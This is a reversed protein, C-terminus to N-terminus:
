TAWSNYWSYAGDLWEAVEEDSADAPDSDREPVILVPMVIQIMEAAREAKEEEDFLLVVEDAVRSLIAVQAKSMFQGSMGLVRRHGYQKMALRNLEGECLIVRGSTGPIDHIGYLTQSADFTDFNYRDEKGPKNGLFRYKPKAEPWWARGKFGILRGEEDRYPISIMRLIPDFGIEADELTQKTFGRQFMYMSWKPPATDDMLMADWVAEWDVARDEQEKEDIPVIARKEATVDQNIIKEYDSWLDITDIFSTGYRERLAAKALFVHIGQVKSWFEIATGSNGCVFCNFTYWGHKDAPRFSNNRNGSGPKHGPFPCKFWVEDGEKEIESIGLFDLMDVIDIKVNDAV